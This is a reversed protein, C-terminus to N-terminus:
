VSGSSLFLENERKPEEISKRNTMGSFGGPKNTHLFLTLEAEREWQHIELQMQSYIGGYNINRDTESTLVRLLTLRFFSM